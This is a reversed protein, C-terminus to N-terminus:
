EEVDKEEEGDDEVEVEDENQYAEGYAEEGTMVVDEGVPATEMTIAVRQSRLSEVKANTIEYVYQGLHEVGEMVTEGEMVQEGANEGTTLVERQAPWMEGPVLVLKDPRKFIINFAEQLEYCSEFV